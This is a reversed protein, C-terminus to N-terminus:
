ISGTPFNRMAIYAVFAASRLRADRRRTHESHWESRCNCCLPRTQRWNIKCYMASGPPAVDAMNGPYYVKPKVHWIYM